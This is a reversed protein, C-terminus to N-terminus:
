FQLQMTSIPKSIMSTVYSGSLKSGFRFDLASLTGPSLKIHHLLTDSLPNDFDPLVAVTEKCKEFKILLCLTHSQKCLM